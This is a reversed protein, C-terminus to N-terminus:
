QMGSTNLGKQLRKEAKHLPQLYTHKRQKKGMKKTTPPQVQMKCTRRCLSM